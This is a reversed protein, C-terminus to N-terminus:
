EGVVTGIPINKGCLFQKASMPKSGEAQLCTIEISSNNGCAICLSDTNKIVTGAPKSTNEGSVASIVKIRKGEFFFFACPWSYYGRVANHIETATKNFDIQAMEKKIIPAYTADAENQKIPTIEGKELSDLTEVMLEASVVSLREFLQEATEEDGIKVTATKLIDGTDMGKDMLMTTVGTEKEGCVICWQIPSAGRYKPLLSAHGNVCGFKPINLISEPLLKGYAVVVIVDPALEKLKAEIEANKLTEPQFVPINHAIACEKVPPATLIHKRGVPKDPQAFVASVNHGANIVAELTKVAYDPTGMFVINM